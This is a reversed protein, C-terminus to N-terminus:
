GCIQVTPPFGCLCSSFMCLGCLFPGPILGSVKKSHPSVNPSAVARGHWGLCHLAFDIDISIWPFNNTLFTVNRYALSVQNTSPGNLTNFHGAHM